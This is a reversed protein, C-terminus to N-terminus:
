KSNVGQLSSDHQSQEEKTFCLFVFTGKIACHLFRVVISHLETFTFIAVLHSVAKLFIILVEEALRLFKELAELKVALLLFRTFGDFFVDRYQMVHGFGTAKEIM